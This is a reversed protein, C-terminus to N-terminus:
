LLDGSDDVLEDSLQFDQGDASTDGTDALLVPECLDKEDDESDEGPIAAPIGYLEAHRKRQEERLEDMEEDSITDALPVLKLYRHM